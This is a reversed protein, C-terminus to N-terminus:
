AAVFTGPKMTGLSIFCSQEVVVEGCEHCYKGGVSSIFLCPNITKKQEPHTKGMCLALVLGSADSIGVM